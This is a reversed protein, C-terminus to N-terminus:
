GFYSEMQSDTLSFYNQLDDLVRQTRAGDKVYDRLKEVANEWSTLSYGWRDRDRPMESKIQSAISDIIGTIYEENLVTDMLEAYRKLFADRGTAHALVAKMLTQDGGSNSLISTVPRDATHWMSWDLDFYMWRWIGDYESSRFRRINALDKDGVYSRCIYWDMLSTVDIQSALYAYNEDLSMDHSKCYSVLAKFDENSGCQVLGSSSYLIDVSEASVDLHSAVYDDSYRERFYYVGWYEGGLYLVVPKMAQTYLNTTGDAIATSVEDRMVASFWDESGGKLLLSNYEDIDRNDFLAYNLKSAGYESRFRLQFNQKDCARSDNGHLRFGFPVSFMEEGNELLTIVAEYEYNQDINNLVGKTGTLSEEPISVVAIPLDHEVGIAYTYSVLASSRDGSVCFTRITTIDSVTIPTTYLASSTTPHSGDLTYYIDGDGSLTITIANEYVGSSLSATPAAVGTFYGTANNSGPTPTTMYVPINGNRGYSENKNLDAPITLVDIFTGNKSLYVTEGDASLKFSAHNNGLATSGSCYVIYYEGPQLTVDPFTYRQMESRKDTLSYESLNIPHNSHNKVEILDYCEGKFPLYKSNSSMVESIILEPLTLSELYSLYGDETNAYGPTPYPCIGASDFSEGNESLGFTLESIISDNCILYVSEGSSSLRFASADDLTIVLYGGPAIQLGALPIAHLDQLDDTLYYGDLTVTTEEQNLLEIWDLEHGLCLRENDPMVENIVIDSADIPVSTSPTSTTSGSTGVTTEHGPDSVCGALTSALLIVTLLLSLIRKM